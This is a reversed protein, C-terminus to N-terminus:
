INNKLKEIEEKLHKVEDKLFQIDDAVSSKNKESSATIKKKVEHETKEDLSIYTVEKGNEKVVVTKLKQAKIMKIVNFISLKHKLAYAKITVKEM